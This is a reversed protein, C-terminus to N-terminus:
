VGRGSELGAAMMRDGIRFVRELAAATMGKVLGQVVEDREELANWAEGAQERAMRILARVQERKSRPRKRKARRGQAVKGSM